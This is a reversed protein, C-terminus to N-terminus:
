RSATLQTHKPFGTTQSHGWYGVGGTKPTIKIDLDSAHATWLAATELVRYDHNKAVLGLKHFRDKHDETM